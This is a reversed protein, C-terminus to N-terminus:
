EEHTEGISSKYRMFEPPRHEHCANVYRYQQNLPTGISSPRDCKWCAAILSEAALCTPCGSLTDNEDFPSKATLINEGCVAGCEECLWRQPQEPLNRRPKSM